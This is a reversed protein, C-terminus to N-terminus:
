LHSERSSFVYLGDPWSSVVAIILCNTQEHAETNSSKKSDQMRLQLEVDGTAVIRWCAAGIVISTTDTSYGQIVSTANIELYSATSRDHSLKDTSPASLRCDSDIMRGTGFFETSIRGRSCM